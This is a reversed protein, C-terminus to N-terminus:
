ILGKDVTHLFALAGEEKRRSDGFLAFKPIDCIHRSGRELSTGFGTLPM